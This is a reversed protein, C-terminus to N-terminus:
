FPFLLVHATVTLRTLLPPTLFISSHKHHFFVDVCLISFDPVKSVVNVRKTNKSILSFRLEWVLFCRHSFILTKQM